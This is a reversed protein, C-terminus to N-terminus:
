VDISPKSALTSPRRRGQAGRALRLVIAIVATGRSGPLALRAALAARDLHVPEIMQHCIIQLMPQEIGVAHLVHKGRMEVPALFPISAASGLRVFEGFPRRFGFLAQLTKVVGDFAPNGIEFIRRQFLSHGLQRCRSVLCPDVGLARFASDLVCALMQRRLM